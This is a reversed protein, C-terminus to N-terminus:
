NQTEEPRKKKRALNKVLSKTRSENGLTESKDTSRRTDKARFFGFVFCAAFIASTQVFLFRAAFM